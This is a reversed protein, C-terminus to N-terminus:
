FRFAVGIRSLLPDVSASESSQTDSLDLQLYRVGGIVAFTKGLGIDLGLSAGWANESKTDVSSGDELHLTGWNVYSYTPGFYLDFYKSHILHFNLTGSLPTFDLDGLKTGGFDVDQTVKLYDVELGFLKGWRWEFGVDWGAESSAKLSDTVSSISVDSESTPAVYSVAGFIKFANDQAQVQPAALLLASALGVGMALRAAWRRKLGNM